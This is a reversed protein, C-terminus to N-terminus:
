QDRLQQYQAPAPLKAQQCEEARPQRAINWKASKNTSKNTKTKCKGTGIVKNPPTLSGLPQIAREARLTRQRTPCILMFIFLSWTPHHKDAHLAPSLWWSGSTTVLCLLSVSQFSFTGPANWSTWLAAAQAWLPESTSFPCEPQLVQRTPGRIQPDPPYIAHMNFFCVLFHKCPNRNHSLLNLVHSTDMLIRTRDRAESLPNLIQCQLSSHYLDCIQSPHRIQSHSHSAASARIWGRARSSGHAAPAAIFLFFVFFLYIFLFLIFYFEKRWRFALYHSYGMCAEKMNVCMRRLGGCLACSM